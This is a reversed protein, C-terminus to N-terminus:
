NPDRKWNQRPLHAPPLSSRRLPISERRHSGRAGADRADQLREVDLAKTRDAIEQAEEHSVILRNLDNIDANLIAMGCVEGGPNIKKRWAVQVAEEIDPAQ